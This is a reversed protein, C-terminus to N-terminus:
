DKNVECVLKFLVYLFFNCIILFLDFEIWMLLNDM